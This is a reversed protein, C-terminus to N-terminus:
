YINDVHDSGPPYATDLYRSFESHSMSELVDHLTMEALDNGANARERLELARAVIDPRSEQYSILNDRAANTIRIPRPVPLAYHTEAGCAASYPRDSYNM